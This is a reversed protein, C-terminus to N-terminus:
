KNELMNKVAKEIKSRGIFYPKELSAAAPAHMDPLTLRRVPADLSDFAREAVLAAIEAAVGGVSWGGDLVLLRRTKEVSSKICEFDVPKISRLDILEISMGATALNKIAHKAEEVLYSSAVVTLDSGKNVVGATDLSVRYYEEPVSGDIDYIWREDIYMVPFDAEVASILMGKADYPNSPMVVSFGPIHQFVGHTSQSHQAAQEGGRNIIARVTLSLPANGGFTSNLLAAHNCLQDMAYYMFDMRPFTLVPKLGTLAAGVAVGATGNESVPTDIMRADGFRDLLGKMTNGVYWPTNVGVGIQFVDPDREMLLHFAENIAAAYTIRRETKEM